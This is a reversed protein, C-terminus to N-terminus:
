RPHLSHKTTRNFHLIWKGPIDVTIKSELTLRRVEPITHSGMRFSIDNGNTRIDTLHFGTDKGDWARAAPFTVDTFAM